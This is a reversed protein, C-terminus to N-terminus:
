TCGATQAIYSQGKRDLHLPQDHATSAGTQKRNEYTGLRAFCGLPTRLPRAGGRSAPSFSGCPHCSCLVGMATTSCMKVACLLMVDSRDVAIIVAMAAARGTTRTDQIQKARCIGTQTVMRTMAMSTSLIVQTHIYIYVGGGGLSSRGQGARGPGLAPQPLFSFFSPRFSSLVFPLFRFRFASLRVLLLALTPLYALLYSLVTVFFPTIIL